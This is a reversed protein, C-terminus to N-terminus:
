LVDSSHGIILLIGALSEDLIGTLVGVLVVFLPGFL